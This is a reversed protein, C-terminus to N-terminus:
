PAEGQTQRFPPSSAIAVALAEFSYGGAEFSREIQMLHPLDVDTPSRGISFTFLQEAICSPYRPDAAIISSLEQVGYFTQGDPLEGSADVLFGNDQERWTGIGDFHEMGLGIPDMADHCSACVPDTRHQELIERLTQPDEADDILGEVNDPPPPPESCLLQGLVWKGRLVPSTRAPYSNLMLLGAQGFLGGRDSASLDVTTWDTVGPIGYHRGLRADIEGETATLLEHLDRENDLFSRFFRQMEERMADRLAEDFDPYATLDPDKSALGRIHLWQGAFEEVLSEAKPDKIMRRVQAAIQEETQLEGAEAAAFLEDDPMSSWLFYSLRSAVEWDNLLAPENTFPDVPVEVRYLFNPSVLVSQVMLRVGDEWTGGDSTVVDFTALLTEIEAETVPRRWARPVFGDLVQRACGRDSESSPECVLLADRMENGGPVLEAPGDLEIWDVYLVRNGVNVIGFENVFSLHITHPGESLTVSVEVIEPNNPWTGSVYHLLDSNGDHGLALRADEDGLQSAWVKTRIIYEGTEPVEVAAVVDTEHGMRWAGEDPEGGANDVDPGEAEFRLLIPEELHYEVVRSAVDQAAAEYLEVHLPSVTLTAAINDYGHSSDDYPFVDAPRMETNFLDRITHNYEARNLRHLVVRGADPLPVEGVDGDKVDPGANCSCGALLALGFTLM